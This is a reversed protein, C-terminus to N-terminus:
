FILTLIVIKVILARLDINSSKRLKTGNTCNLCSSFCWTSANSKSFHLVCLALHRLTYMNIM